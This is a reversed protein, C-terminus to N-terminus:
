PRSPLPGVADEESATDAKDGTDGTSPDNTRTDTPDPATAWQWLAWLAAVGVLAAATLLLWRGAGSNAWNATQSDLHQVFSLVPDQRHTRSGFLTTGWTDLLYGAVLLLLVGNIWRLHALLRTLTRAVGDRLLTAGISLAMLVLAMGSAYAALVALAGLGGGTTTTLSAGIVILFAPLTCGLSALSYGAGFLLLSAPSRDQGTRRIRGEPLRFQRGALTAVAFVAMALGVGFGVWPVAQTLQGAGLAIPVGLVAFVSLFGATLLLGALIARVVPAAASGTAHEDKTGLAASLFAPLLAFGCPNLTALVGALLAFTISM